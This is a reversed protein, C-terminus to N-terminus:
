NAASINDIANQLATLVASTKVGTVHDATMQEGSFCTSGNTTILDYYYNGVHKAKDDKFTPGKSGDQPDTAPDSDTAAGRVITAIPTCESGTLTLNAYPAGSNSVLQYKVGAIDSALPLKVDWETITLYSPAAATEHSTKATSATKDYTKNVNKNTHYIYYGVFGVLVVLIIVLLTEIVGFGSQNSQKRM